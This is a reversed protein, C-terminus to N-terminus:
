YKSLTYCIYEEQFYDCIFTRPQIIPEEGISIIQPFGDGSDDESYNRHQSFISTYNLESSDESHDEGYNYGSSQITFLLLVIM